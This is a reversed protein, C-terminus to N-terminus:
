GETEFINKYEILFIYHNNNYEEGYKGQQVYVDEGLNIWGSGDGSDYENNDHLGMAVKWKAEFLNRETVDFRDEGNIVSHEVHIYLVSDDEKRYKMELSHNEGSDDKYITFDCIAQELKIGSYGEDVLIYENAKKAIDSANTKMERREQENLNVYIRAEESVYEAVGGYGGISVTIYGSKDGVYVDQKDDSVKADGSDSYVSLKLRYDGDCEVEFIDSWNLTQGSRVIGMSKVTFKPTKNIYNRIIIIGGIIGLAIVFLIIMTIIVAKRKM